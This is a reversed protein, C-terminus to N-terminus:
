RLQRRGPERASVNLSQSLTRYGQLEANIVYNGATLSLRCGPTLCAQDGVRIRAGAPQTEITVIYTAPVTKKSSGFYKVAVGAAVLSLVALATWKNLLRPVLGTSATESRPIRPARAPVAAVEAHGATQPTSLKAPSLQAAVAQQKARLSELASKSKILGQQIEADNPYRAAIDAARRLMKDVAAPKATASEAFARLDRLDTDRQRRQAEAQKNEAERKKEEVKKVKVATKASEQLQQLQPDKGFARLAADAAQLAEEPRGNNLLSRM